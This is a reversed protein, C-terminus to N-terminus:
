HSVGKGHGDRIMPFDARRLELFARERKQVPRTQRSEGKWYLCVTSGHGGKPSLRSLGTSVTVWSICYKGNRGWLSLMQGPADKEQTVHYLGQLIVELVGQPLLSLVQLLGDGVHHQGTVLLGM